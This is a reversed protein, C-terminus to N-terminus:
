LKRVAEGMVPLLGVSAFMCFCVIWHAYLRVLRGYRNDDKGGRSHIYHMGYGSLILLFGVPNAARTLWNVLPVDGVYCLNTCEFAYERIMFLHLFVMLTIAVGKM